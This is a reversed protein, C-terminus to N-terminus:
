GKPLVPTKGQTIGIKGAFIAARFVGIGRVYYKVLM